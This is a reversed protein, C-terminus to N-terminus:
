DTEMGNWEDLLNEVAALTTAYIKVGDWDDDHTRGRIEVIYGNDVKSVEFSDNVKSLKESINM